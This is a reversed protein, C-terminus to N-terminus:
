VPRQIHFRYSLIQGTVSSTM